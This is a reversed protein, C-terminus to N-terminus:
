VRERCSARGIQKIEGTAFIEAGFTIPTDSRDLTNWSVSRANGAKGGSDEDANEQSLVEVISLRVGTSAIEIVAEPKARAKQTEIKKRAM